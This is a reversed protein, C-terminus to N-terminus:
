ASVVDSVIEAFAVAAPLEASVNPAPICFMVPEDVAPVVSMEPIVDVVVRKGPIGTVPGPIGSPVVITLLVPLETVSEAEEVASRDCGSSKEAISSLPLVTAPDVVKVRALIVEDNVNVVAAKVVLPVVVTLEGVTVPIEEVTPRIAPIGTVPAPMGGLVVIREIMLPVESVSEAFAVAAPVEASVNPGPDCVRVPV